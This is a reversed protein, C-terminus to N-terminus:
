PRVRFPLNSILVGGPTLVQINGTTAGIPVTATILSSRVVTFMAAIGNFTVSTASTLNTGLIRIATGVKGSAPLTKVFPGLGVSLSFITGNIGNNAGGQSTTGFFTGDTAQLLGAEPTSGDTFSFTHLTTLTAGETIEFITGENIAGGQAGQTTGYFNGDTGQVLGSWPLTGDTFEFSHLTVLMGSPAMKFVTGCGESCDIIDAGGASTTGYFNGDTAQILGGGPEIGDTFDFRHLTTLAGGATVKFITGYGYPLGNGGFVATGYFQGDTAQVLRAAPNAGHTFDFSHLTTLVGGPTMRFITGYGHAGGYFTTGYFNGDTAQVLSAYPNAGDTSDFSHLVTLIGGSTMKFVTGVNSVGGLETTGYFSGDIAQVVGALPNAGDTSNFSCLTTLAGSTTMKFVTGVNSVGGLETTGYLNGDTGQVLPGFVPSAGNSGNFNVLTTFSQGPSAFPVAAWSLFFICVRRWGIRNNM